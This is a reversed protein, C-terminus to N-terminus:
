LQIDARIMKELNWLNQFFNKNITKANISMIYLASTKMVVDKQLLTSVCASITPNHGVLMVSSIGKNKEVANYIEEFYMSEDGGYLSDLKYNITASSSSANWGQTTVNTTEITRNASSSIIIDPFHNYKQLLRGVEKAQRQGKKNLNRSFDSKGNVKEAKAHRYFFLYFM